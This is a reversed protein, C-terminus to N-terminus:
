KGRRTVAIMLPPLKRINAYGCIIADFVGDDLTKAWEILADRERSGEEHGPYVCVTMVGGPKILHLAENVAKLTTEVHTTCEHPTGPLWGLNFVIADMPEKVYEGMHEHGALILKARDELGKETLRKRTNEVAAEQVDFAYIRGSEGVCEALWETDYGNGMTADVVCAGEYIAQTIIAKAWKRAGGFDAM